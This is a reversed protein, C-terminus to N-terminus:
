TPSTVRNSPLHVMEYPVYWLCIILMSYAYGRTTETFTRSVKKSSSRPQITCVPHAYIGREFTCAFIAHIHAVWVLFANYKTGSIASNGRRQEVVSLQLLKSLHVFIDLLARVVGRYAFFTRRLLL